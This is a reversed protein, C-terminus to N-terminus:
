KKVGYVWTLRNENWIERLYRRESIEDGSPTLQIDPRLKKLKLFEQEFASDLRKRYRSVEISDIAKFIFWGFYIFVGAFAISLGSQIPSWYHFALSGGLSLGLVIFFTFLSHSLITIYTTSVVDKKYSNLIYHERKEKEPFNTIAKSEEFAAPKEASPQAPLKPPITNVTQLNSTGSDYEPELKMIETMENLEEPNLPFVMQLENLLERAEHIKGVGCLAMIYIRNVDIAADRGRDMYPFKKYYKALVQFLKNIELESLDFLQKNICINIGDAVVDKIVDSVEPIIELASFLQNLSCRYGFAKRCEQTISFISDEVNDQFETTVIRTYRDLLATNSPRNIEPDIPKWYEHLIGYLLDVNSTQYTVGLEPKRSVHLLVPWADPMSIDRTWLVFYKESPNLFDDINM